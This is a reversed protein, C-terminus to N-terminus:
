GAQFDTVETIDLELVKHLYHRLLAQVMTAPLLIRERMLDERVTEVLGEEALEPQRCIAHRAAQIGAKAIRPALSMGQDALESCVEHVIRDLSLLLADRTRFTPENAGPLGPIRM